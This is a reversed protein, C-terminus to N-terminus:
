TCLVCDCLAVYLTGVTYMINFYMYVVSVCVYGGVCARLHVYLIHVEIVPVGLLLAIVLLFTQSSNLHQPLLRSLLLAGPLQLEPRSPDCICLYWVVHFYGKGM